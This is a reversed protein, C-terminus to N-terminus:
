SPCYTSVSQPSDWKRILGRSSIKEGWKSAHLTNRSPSRSKSSHLTLNNGPSRPKTMRRGGALHAKSTSYKQTAPSGADPNNRRNYLKATPLCPLATFGAQHVSQSLAWGCGLRNVNVRNFYFLYFYLKNWTSANSLWGLPTGLKGLCLSTYPFTWMDWGVDCFRWWGNMTDMADVWWRRLRHKTRPGPTTHSMFHPLPEGSNRGWMTDGILVIANSYGSVNIFNKMWENM